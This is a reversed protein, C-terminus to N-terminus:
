GTRDYYLVEQVLLTVFHTSNIIFVGAATALGFPFVKWNISGCLANPIITINLLQFIYILMRFILPFLMNVM